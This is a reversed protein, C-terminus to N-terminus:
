MENTYKDNTFKFSIVEDILRQESKNLEALFEQYKKEKLKELIEREQMAKVLQEKYKDVNKQAININEKQLMIKEKLFSLYASYERLKEIRVGMSSDSNMQKMCEEQEEQIRRLVEKEDELKRTAKGLENKLSEEIQIKLNLVPQLRFNFKPM